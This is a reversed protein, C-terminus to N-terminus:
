KFNSSFIYFTSKFNLTSINIVIKFPLRCLILFTQIIKLSFLFHWEQRIIQFCFIQLIFTNNSDLVILFVAKTNKRTLIM